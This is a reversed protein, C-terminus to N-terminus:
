NYALNHLKQQLCAAAGRMLREAILDVHRNRWDALESGKVSHNFAGMAPGCHIQYNAKEGVVGQMALRASHVFYWKFVLAMKHKPNVEAKEVEHARQLALYDKTARWVEEFSRKFYSEEITRRTIEDIQDLSAYQRYVQYLKNARAPFLTGKRVAQVRAGLEFMDGAPAYTTDQVDLEALLDKVIASTGAEPSCQNISGTLIFDAGLIFAAAAAEPAGIGGAAGVRIRKPYNLRAMVEDRLQMMAPMLAYAVGGDTHGGSDAEVCIDESVPLQRAVERESPTLKGEDVLRNLIREAPPKMFALAIEPRSVKALV